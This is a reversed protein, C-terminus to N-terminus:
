GVENTGYYKDNGPAEEDNVLTIPDSEKGTGQVSM